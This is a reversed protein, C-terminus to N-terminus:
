IRLIGNDTAAYYGETVSDYPKNFTGMETGTYGGDIHVVTKDTYGRWLARFRIYDASVLGNIPLANYHLILRNLEATNENAAVLAHPLPAQIGKGVQAELPISFIGISGDSRGVFFQDRHDNPNGLLGVLFHNNQSAELIPGNNGATWAVELPPDFAGPDPNLFAVPNMRYFTRPTSVFDATRVIMDTEVYGDTRGTTTVDFEIGVDYVERHHFKVYTNPATYAYIGFHPGLIVPRQDVFTHHHQKEIWLELHNPIANNTRLELLVGQATNINQAVAAIKGGDWVVSVTRNEARLIQVVGQKNAILFYGDSLYVDDMTRGSGSPVKRRFLIGAFADPSAEALSIRMRTAFRGEQIEVLRDNWGDYLFPDGTLPKMENGIMMIGSTYGARGKFWIPVSEGTFGSKEGPHYNTLWGEQRQNDSALPISDDIADLCYWFFPAFGTVRYYDYGNPWDSPLAERAYYNYYSLDGLSDVQRALRVISQTPDQGTEYTLQFGAGPHTFIISNSHGNPVWALPTGGYFTDFDITLNGVAMRVYRNEAGHRTLNVQGYSPRASMYAIVVSILLLLFITKRKTNM